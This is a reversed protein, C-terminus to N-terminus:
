KYSFMLVCTLELKLKEKFIGFLPQSSLQRYLAQHCLNTMGTSLLCICSFGLDWQGAWGLWGEQSTGPWHSARDWFALHHNQPMVGLITKQGGHACAFDHLTLLMCAYVHV